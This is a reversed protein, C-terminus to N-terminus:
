ISLCKRRDGADQYAAEATGATGTTGMIFGPITGTHRAHGGFGGSFHGGGDHM